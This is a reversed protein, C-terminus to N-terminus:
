DVRFNVFQWPDRRDLGPEDFLRERGQLPTWASRVGVVPGLYPRIMSLMEDYPLDDPELLGERPHNLAWAVGAMLPAAVQLSTASNCPCLDRAQDISLQSGLWYASFGPGMLLVGLEDRGSDIETENLVHKGPPEAWAQGAREHLSLVAADCPHYAYHVTPRYRPAETPGLTLADAISISEAHTVLFGLFPGAHPAWSRVRTAAGPRNLYIAARCGEDHHGADFPFHREHTGWGLEAPQLAESLFGDVSWTNFFEGPRRRRRGSQSDREAIHIVNLGLGEALAAWAERRGPVPVQPGALDLLAQKVLFSVLGPNAGLTILATPQGPGRLALVEERLRYNTRQAPPLRRDTYVGPWPETSADLYLAGQQQCLRILAHSSVDVSLNLLVDGPRLRPVLWDRYNDRQVKAATHHVGAADAPALGRTSPKLIEIQQPRLAIHRLLLPLVARGISGFGLMVLRGPLEAFRPPREM